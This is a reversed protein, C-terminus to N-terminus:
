LIAVDFARIQKASEFVVRTLTWRSTTKSRDFRFIRHKSRVFLADGIARGQRFYGEDCVLDRRSAAEHAEVDVGDICTMSRGTEADKKYTVTGFDYIEGDEAIPCCEICDMSVNIRENRIVLVDVAFVKSQKVRRIVRMTVPSSPGGDTKHRPSIEVIAMDILCRLRDDESPLMRVFPPSRATSCYETVELVGLLRARAGIPRSMMKLLGTASSSMELFLSALDVGDGLNWEDRHGAILRVQEDCLPEVVTWSGACAGGWRDVPDLAFSSGARVRDTPAGFLINVCQGTARAISAVSELAVPPHCEPRPVLRRQELVTAEGERPPTPTKLIWLHGASPGFQFGHVLGSRFWTGNPEAEQHSYGGDVFWVREPLKTAFAVVVDNTYQAVVHAMDMAIYCAAAVAEAIAATIPAPTSPAGTAPIVKWESLPQTISSTVDDTTAAAVAAAAGGSATKSRKPSRDDICASM